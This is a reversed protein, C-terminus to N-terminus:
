VVEVYDENQTLRRVFTIPDTCIGSRQAIAHFAETGRTGYIGESDVTFVYIWGFKLRIDVMAKAQFSDPPVTRLFYSYFYNESLSVSTSCNSIQLIEFVQLISAVKASVDSIAAGVVGVLQVRSKRVITMKIFERTHSAAFIKARLAVNPLIKDDENLKAIAYKMGYGLQLGIIIAEEGFKLASDKSKSRIPFVDGM